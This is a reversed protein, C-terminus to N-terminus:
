VVGLRLISQVHIGHHTLNLHVNLGRLSERKEKMTMCTQSSTLHQTSGVSIHPQSDHACLLSILCLHTEALFALFELAALYGFVLSNSWPMMQGWCPATHNGQPICLIGSDTWLFMKRTCCYTLEYLHKIVWMLDLCDCLHKIIWMMDLCDCLKIVWMLDLCNCLQKIIWM